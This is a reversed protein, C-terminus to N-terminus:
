SGFASYTNVWALLSEHGSGLFTHSGFAGTRVNGLWGDITSFCLVQPPFQFGLGSSHEPDCKLARCWTGDNDRVTTSQGNSSVRTGMQM